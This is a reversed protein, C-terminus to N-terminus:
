SERSGFYKLTRDMGVSAIFSANKGFRMGSVMGSHDILASPAVSIIVSQVSYLLLVSRHLVEASAMTQM